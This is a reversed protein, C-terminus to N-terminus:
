TLSMISSSVFYVAFVLMTVGSALFLLHHGKESWLGKSKHVAASVFYYWGYDCAIHVVAFVPLMVLGFTVAGAVLAAGVTAWWLFFYPNAATTVFGATITGRSTPSEERVIKKRHRVMDLGMYFLLAGGVIGVVAFVIPDNLVTTFGLFIAIILPVEIFAHGTAIKLGARLDGYGKAVAAAFVPGPMIVGSLSIFAVMALFVLPSDPVTM